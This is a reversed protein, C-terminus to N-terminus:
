EVVCIPLIDMMTVKGEKEDSLGHADLMRFVVRKKKDRIRGVGARSM